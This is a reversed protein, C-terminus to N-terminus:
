RGVSRSRTDGCSDPSPNTVGGLRVNGGTPGRKEFRRLTTVRDCNRDGDLLPVVPSSPGIKDDLGKASDM